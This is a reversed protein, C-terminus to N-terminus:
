YTAAAKSLGLLASRMAAPDPNVPALGNVPTEILVQLNAPELLRASMVRLTERLADFAHYARPSANWLAVPKNVFVSNSVMWDLANKLM